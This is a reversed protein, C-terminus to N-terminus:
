DNVSGPFVVSSFREVHAGWREAGTGGRVAADRSIETSGCTYCRKVFNVTETARGGDQVKTSAPRHQASEGGKGPRRALQKQEEELLRGTLYAMRSKCLSWPGMFQGLFQAGCVGQAETFREELELFTRRM